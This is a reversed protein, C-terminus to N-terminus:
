TLLSVVGGLWVFGRTRYCLPKRSHSDSGREGGAGAQQRRDAVQGLVFGGCMPACHMTSGALGALFLGLLLGGSWPIAGCFSAIM